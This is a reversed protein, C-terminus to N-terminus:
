GYKGIWFLIALIASNETASSAPEVISGAPSISILVLISTTNRKFYNETVNLYKGGIEGVLSPFLIRGFESGFNLWIQFYFQASDPLLVKVFVSADIIM